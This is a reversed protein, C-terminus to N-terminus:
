NSVGLGPLDINSIKQSAKSAIPYSCYDAATYATPRFNGSRKCGGFPLQSSAGTTAQNWNIIGAKIESQCQRFESEFRSLLSASLGYETQNAEQIAEDLSEVWKVQLLPGFIEEDPANIGTMDIISATVFANNQQSKLLAKGGLSILQNQFDILKKASSQSILPGM